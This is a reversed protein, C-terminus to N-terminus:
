PRSCRRGPRSRGEVGGGARRAPRLRRLPGVAGHGGPRDGPRHGLAPPGAARGAARDGARRHARGPGPGRAAVGARRGAPPLARVPGVRVVIDDAIPISNVDRADIADLHDTVLAKSGPCATAASTSTGCGPVREQERNAIDDLDDELRATFAYDVLHPFHRELLTSWRSRPGRRSWRRARRGCTAATRSPASSRRTPRRGASASSRSRRSWRRRPTAPPPPPPTARPSSSSSTSPTASPWRRAAAAGPGRARRRPRRRGRRLGAPLRPLHHGQGVHRVRRGRRRVVVGGFRVQVTQGRADAMQSAVTRKWILDYLRLEDPGLERRCRTPRASGSARPASRRTPRRPTRSRRTTSGPSPRSTSPATSSAPRTARGRHPGDGVAHHQRHAHLHHLRERVAAPGGAHHPPRRLAAQPGGGAALDLDHVAGRPRATYPKEDVSRVTLPAGDLRTPSAAPAAGRRPPRRRRESALTGDATSTAAPSWGPATSPSWAAASRRARRAAQFRGEIDWWGASRFAM